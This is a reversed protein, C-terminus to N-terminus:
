WGVHYETAPVCVHLYRASRAASSRHLTRAHIRPRHPEQLLVVAGLHAAPLRRRLTHLRHERRPLEKRVQRQLRNHASPLHASSRIHASARSIRRAPEGVLNHQELGARAPLRRHPLRALAGDPDRAGELAAELLVRVAGSHGGDRSAPHQRHRIRRLVSTACQRLPLRGLSPEM